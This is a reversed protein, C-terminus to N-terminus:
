MFSILYQQVLDVLENAELIDLLAGHTILRIDYEAYAMSSSVHSLLKGNTYIYLIDAFRANLMLRTHPSRIFLNNDLLCQVNYANVYVHIYRVLDPHLARILDQIISVQSAITSPKRFSFTCYIWEYQYNMICFYVYKESQTWFKENLTHRKMPHSHTGIEIRCINEFDSLLTYTENALYRLKCAKRKYKCIQM